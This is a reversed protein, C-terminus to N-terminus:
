DYNVLKTLSNIAKQLLQLEQASCTEKLAKSLWIDREDRVTYLVQQGKKSLTIISKRKDTKSPKRNIYELEVLHNIIQSMSQTTIKEMTALESPTLEKHHDLLSLTSHETLSLKGNVDSKSRLKMILRRIVTRLDSALQQEETKTPM